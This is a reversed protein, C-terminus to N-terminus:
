IFLIKFSEDEIFHQNGDDGYDAELIPEEVYMVRYHIVLIKVYCFIIYCVKTVVSSFAWSDIFLGNYLWSFLFFLM